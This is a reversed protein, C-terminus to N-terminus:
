SNGRKSMAEELNDAISQEVTNARKQRKRPRTEGLHSRHRTFLSYESEPIVAVIRQMLEVAENIQFPSGHQDLYDLLDAAATYKEVFDPSRYKPVKITTLNLTM